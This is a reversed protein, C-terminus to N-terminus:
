LSVANEAIKGFTSQTVSLLAAGIKFETFNAKRTNGHQNGLQLTFHLTIEM